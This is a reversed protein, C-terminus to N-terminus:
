IGHPPAAPSDDIPTLEGMVSQPRPSAQRRSWWGPLMGLVGVVMGLAFAAFVILVMPARWAHGFLLQVTADQLNNVAFAFLALFVVAIPIWKLLRLLKIM